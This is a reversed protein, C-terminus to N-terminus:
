GYKRLIGTLEEKTKVNRIEEAIDYYQFVDGIWNSFDNRGLGIHHEFFQEPMKPLEEILERISYIRHNNNLIFAQDHSAKKDIISHAFMQSIAGGISTSAVPREVEPEELITIKEEVLPTKKVTKEEKSDEFEKKVNKQVKDEKQVEINTANALNISIKKKLENLDKASDKKNGYLAEEVESLQEKKKMLAEVAEKDSIKSDKESPLVNYGYRKSIDHYEKFSIFGEEYSKKLREIREDISIAKEEESKKSSLKRKFWDSFNLSLSHEMKWANVRRTIRRRAPSYSYQYTKSKYFLGTNFLTIASALIIIVWVWIMLTKRPSDTIPLYKNPTLVTFQESKAYQKGKHIINIALTYYGEGLSSPIKVIHEIRSPNNVNKEDTSIVGGKPDLINYIITTNDEELGKIRVFTLIDQDIGLKKINSDLSIEIEPNDAPIVDVTLGVNKSHDSNYIHIPLVYTGIPVERSDIIINFDGTEDIYKVETTTSVFGTGQTYSSPHQIELTYEMPKSSNILIIRQVVIGQEITVKISDSNITFYGKPISGPTIGTYIGNGSGGGSSGGGPTKECELYEIPKNINSGCSNVDICTRTGCDGHDWATCYWDPGCVVTYVNFVAANALGSFLIAIVVALIVRAKNPTLYTSM